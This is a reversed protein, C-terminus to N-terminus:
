AGPEPRHDSVFDQVTELMPEAKLYDIPIDLLHIGSEIVLSPFSSVGMDRVLALENRLDQDIAPSLLRQEFEKADLGISQAVSVLTDVDSPNRAQLYYAQQIGYTMRDELDAMLRASIAARCAPYTSRRPTTLKWFDLNFETGPITQQIRRWTAQLDERMGPPMPEDSDPALGGVRTIFAIGRPLRKRLDLLVPRFGWCWSCMPDHVYYLKASPETM